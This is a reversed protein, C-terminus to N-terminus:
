HIYVCLRQLTGQGPVTLGRECRGHGAVRSGRGEVRSGRGEVQSRCSSSIDTSTHVSIDHRVVGYLTRMYPILVGMGGVIRERSLTDTDISVYSWLDRM